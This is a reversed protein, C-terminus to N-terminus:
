SVKQIDKALAQMDEVARGVAVSHKSRAAKLADKAAELDDTGEEAKQVRGRRPLCRFLGRKRLERNRERGENQM